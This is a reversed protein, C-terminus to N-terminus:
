PYVKKSKKDIIDVGKFGEFKLKLSEEAILKDFDLPEQAKEIIRNIVKSTSHEKTEFKVITQYYFFAYPFIIIFSILQLFYGPGILYYFNYNLELDNYVLFPFYLRNPYLYFIPFIFIYFANLILLTFNIYAYPYLKDLTKNKELDKYILGYITLVVCCLVAINIVLPINLNSPEVLRNFAADESFSTSWETFPNYSWSAILEQNEDFVQFYYWDLFLSVILLGLGVLFLIKFKYNISSM